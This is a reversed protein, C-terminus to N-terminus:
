AKPALDDKCAGGSTPENLRRLKSWFRSSRATRNQRALEAAIIEGLIM